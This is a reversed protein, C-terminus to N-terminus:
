LAQVAKFIEVLDASVLEPFDDIVKSIVELKLGEEKGKKLSNLQPFAILLLEELNHGQHHLYRIDIQIIKGNLLVTDLKGLEPTNMLPLVSNVIFDSIIQIRSQELKVIDSYNESNLIGLQERSIIKERLLLAAILIPDLLYNEISYRNGNGLVKVFAKDENEKDWDIIGWVFKNGARRLVDVISIVQACNAIKMGNKDKRSEGSSIFSLSVDPLLHISLVRYLKEYFLVDNPSEVFVQRRNEYSISFSPVGSTLIKLAADKSTKEIRMGTKNVVYISEEPAFAITSPSHTAIIVKMGKEKVFINHIIDIFQKAMSPHLSADPEDMLLLQPFEIITKSNYLALVILMLVKEGSSLEYLNVESRTITNFLKFQFSSEIDTDLPSNCCYDLKAEILIRNLVDWPAQGYNELFADRDLFKVDERNKFKNFYENQDNRELKIHYKKFIISFNQQFINGSQSFDDAPYFDYLEKNTLSFVNRGSSEMIKDIIRIQQASAVNYGRSNFSEFVSTIQQTFSSKDIPLDLNTFQPRIMEILNWLVQINQNAIEKTVVASNGSSELTFSSVIQKRVMLEGNDAVFKAGQVINQANLGTMPSTASLDEGAIVSLIQTKGAGNLGTLIVFDPLEISFPMLSKFKAVVEIRM